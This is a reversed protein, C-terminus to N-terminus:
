GSKEPLARDFRRGIREWEYGLGVGAITSTDLKGDTMKYLGPHVRAEPENSAPFFQRSNTEVGKLPRLHAALGVSQILAIGPNTLDQVTYVIGRQAAEAAVLLASSQCKCTKLAVGTYGLQMALDIDRLRTLSEDIVVPKLEAICSVNLPHEILNRHCPQEIYLIADYTAPDKERVKQLMEVIYEPRECQENTDASLWLGEIGLRRHEDRAVRAVDVLRQVDWELDNGRLKVKLCHLHEYRIWQDLSVPLDDKPDDDTIEAETLKDLGGVLHFGDIWRPMPQIFDSLYAGRFRSGLYRSLDHGIFARGYGNYTNIRNVKGFADHLAADVPSACVLSALHPMIEPLHLNRCLTDAMPQLEEHLDWWIDLPHAYDSYESVRKAWAQVLRKMAHQRSEPRVRPSPWAWVDSLFIAGWGEATDGRRNEVLVRVHALPTQRMVVAGFKLPIRPKEETIFVEVELPKIYADV